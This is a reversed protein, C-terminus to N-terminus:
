GEGLVEALPRPVGVAYGQVYDVGLDRLLTITTETEVFEAVTHKGLLHGIDNISRVMAFDISDTAMDRVFAGDIKLYDVPLQKLYVLSSFGNGFDDLAFRCGHEKLCRIFQNAGALDAVAATETIEFCIKHAPVHTGRLAELICGLMESQGLSRGSLNISLQGIQALVGPRAAIWEFVREIVWRDIRAALNYREAAPLFEGPKIRAGLEDRMRLLVEYHPGDPGARLATIPQCDLEFRQDNLAQIISSAWRMEGRRLQVPLNDTEWAHVCNRGSDKAAYCATDAMSLLSGPTDSAETVAVIGVSVTIAHDRGRWHFVHQEVARRLAEVARQANALPCDELLVAFEDSGIRAVTDRRRAEDKLVRGIQRLLEDGAQSGGADNVLKFQDLDFVALAHVTHEVQASEIVQALRAELSKRNALGTLEDHHAQFSLLESLRYADDIDECTLLVLDLGGDRVARATNRMWIVEGNKKVQRIDWRHIRGPLDRAAALNEQALARDEPVYLDLMSRGLLARADYGLYRAGFHNTHLVHGDASLAFCTMPTHDHLVDFPIRQTPGAKAGPLMGGSPVLALTERLLASQTRLRSVTARLTLQTNIRTLLIPFDGPKVIYDNAGLALTRQIDGKDNSAALVIVPLQTATYRQRLRRLVEEGRMEPMQLDLIVLDFARREILALASPGDAATVVDFGKAGLRMSIAKRITANDDVALVAAAASM